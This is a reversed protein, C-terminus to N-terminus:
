STKGVSSIFDDILKRHAADDLSRDLLNSSANIVLDAVERRLDLITKERERALEAEGRSLISDSRSRADAIIEDRIGQAEKIAAQIKEHSETEIAALRKEYDRRFGEMAGREREATAYTEAIDQRRGELVQGIPGFLFRKFVILLLIFGGIQILLVRPDINLIDM